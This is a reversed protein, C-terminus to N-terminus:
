QNPTDDTSGPEFFMGDGPQPEGAPQQPNATPLQPQQEPAPQPLEVPQQVVVPQQYVPQQAPTQAQAARRTAQEYQQQWLQQAQDDMQQWTPTEPPQQVQGYQQQPQGYQQGYQQYQGYQDGPSMPQQGYPMYTSRSDITPPLPDDESRWNPVDFQRMWLGVMGYSLTQILTGVFCNAVYCAFAGPIMGAFFVMFANFLAENYEIGGPMTSIERYISVFLPLSTGIVVIGYVIALATSTLFSFGLVRALGISDHDAPQFVRSFNFGAGARQYIAAHMTAVM